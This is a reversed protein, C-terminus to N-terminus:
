EPQNGTLFHWGNEAGPRGYREVYNKKKAAALQPEERPNFSVTIVNFEEGVDFTLVKLSSALGNLVQTCLMPCEYYALSLVVPKGNFYDKLQVKRGNEDKFTLDLPVQANLKQDIGVDRLMDPRRNAIPSAQGFTSVSFSLLCIVASVLLFPRASLIKDIMRSPMQDFM